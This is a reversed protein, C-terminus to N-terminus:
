KGHENFSPPYAFDKSGDLQQLHPSRSQKPQEQPNKMVPPQEDGRHPNADPSPNQNTTSPNKFPLQPLTTAPPGTYKLFCVWVTTILVALVIASAFIWILRRMPDATKKIQGKRQTASDKLAQDPLKNALSYNNIIQPSASPQPLQRGDIDRIKSLDAFFSISKDDGSVKEAERSSIFDFVSENSNSHEEIFLVLKRFDLEQRIQFLSGAGDTM